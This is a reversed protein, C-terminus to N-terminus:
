SEVIFSIFSPVSQIVRENSLHVSYPQVYLLFNQTTPLSSQCATLLYLRATFMFIAIFIALSAVNLCVAFPQHCGTSCSPQHTTNVEVVGKKSIKHSYLMGWVLSVYEM